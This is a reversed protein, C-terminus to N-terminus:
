LPTVEEAARETKAGLILVLGRALATFEKSACEDFGELVIAVDCVSRAVDDRIQM